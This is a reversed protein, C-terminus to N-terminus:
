PSRSGGPPQRSADDPTTESDGGTEALAKRFEHVTKGLSRGVEPLKGPGFLLLAIFLIVLLEPLGISGLM